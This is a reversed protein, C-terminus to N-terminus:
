SEAVFAHNDCSIIDVVSLQAIPHVFLAGQDNDDRKHNVTMSEGSILSDLLETSFNAFQQVIKRCLNPRPPAADLRKYASLLM